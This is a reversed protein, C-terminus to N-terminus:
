SWPRLNGRKNQPVAPQTRLHEIQVLVNEAVVVELLEDGTETEIGIGAPAARVESKTKNCAVLM